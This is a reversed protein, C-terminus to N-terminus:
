KSTSGYGGLREGGAVDDDTVSYTHFIGQGIIDGKKLIIDFPSLNIVQFFIHGENDPNDVYDADVIGVGNGLMLYSNLPTSSRIALQLYQNSEMYAKVGTPVLTLKANNNAILTKIEKLDKYFIDALIQDLDEGALLSGAFEPTSLQNFDFTEVDIDALKQTIFDNKGLGELLIKFINKYLSPVITDKVVTFDYGASYATKRVPLDFDVSKYEQVKEFKIM